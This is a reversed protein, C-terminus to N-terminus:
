PRAVVSWISFAAVSQLGSLSAPTTKLSMWQRTISQRAHLGPPDADRQAGDRDRACNGAGCLRDPDVVADVRPQLAVVVDREGRLILDFLGDAADAETELEFLVRGHDLGAHDPADVMAAVF